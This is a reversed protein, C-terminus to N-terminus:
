CANVAAVVSSDVTYLVNLLRMTARCSIRVWSVLGCKSFLSLCWNCFVSVASVASSLRSSLFSVWVACAIM